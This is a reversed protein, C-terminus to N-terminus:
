VTGPLGVDATHRKVNFSVRSHGVYSAVASVAVIVAQAAVPAMGVFTVLAPLALLNFAFTVAYVMSFRLFERVFNGDTKFVLYKYCLYAQSVALVNSVILVMLYHAARPAGAPKTSYYLGAYTLVGFLTDWGGVIVFRIPRGVENWATKM